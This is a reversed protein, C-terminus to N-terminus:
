ASRPKRKAWGTKDSASEDVKGNVGGNAVSRTRGQPRPPPAEKLRTKALVGAQELIPYAISCIHSNIRKLDSILDLHLSSTEISEVTQSTLRELHSDAYARELDRFLVKQALLEQAGKLEGDLFVGLGLRLNAILRAHLDCIEAM